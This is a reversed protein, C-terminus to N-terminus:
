NKKANKGFYRHSCLNQAFSQPFFGFGYFFNNKLYLAQLVLEQLGDTKKTLRPRFLEMPNALNESQTKARSDLAKVLSRCAAAKPNIGGIGSAEIFLRDVAVGNSCFARFPLPEFLRLFFDFLDLFYAHM